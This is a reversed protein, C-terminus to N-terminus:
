RAYTSYVQNHREEHSTVALMLKYTKNIKNINRPDRRGVDDSYPCVSQALMKYQKIM